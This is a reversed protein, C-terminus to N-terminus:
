EAALADREEISWEPEIYGDRAYETQMSSVMGKMLFKVFWIVWFIQKKAICLVKM